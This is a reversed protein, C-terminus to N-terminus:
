RVGVIEEEEGWVEGGFGGGRAVGHQEVSRPLFTYIATLIWVSLLSNM